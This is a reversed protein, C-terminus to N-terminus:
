EKFAYNVISEKWETKNMVTPNISLLIVSVKDFQAAEDSYLITDLYEIMGM